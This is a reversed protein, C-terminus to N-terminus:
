LKDYDEVTIRKNIWRFKEKLHGYQVRTEQESGNYSCKPCAYKDDELKMIVDIDRSFCVPCRMTLRHDKATSM